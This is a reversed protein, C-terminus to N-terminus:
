EKYSDTDFSFFDRTNKDAKSVNVVFLCSICSNTGHCKIVQTLCTKSGFPCFFDMVLRPKAQGNKFENHRYADSFGFGIKGDM